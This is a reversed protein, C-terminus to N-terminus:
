LRPSQQSFFSSCSAPFPPSSSNLNCKTRSLSHFLPSSLAGTPHWVFYTASPAQPSLRTERLVSVSHLTVINKTSRQNQHQSITKGRTSSKKRTAIAFAPLKRKHPPTNRRDQVAAHPRPRCSRLPTHNTQRANVVSAWRAPAYVRTLHKENKEKM